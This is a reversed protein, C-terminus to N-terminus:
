MIKQGSLPLILYRIHSSHDLIWQAKNLSRINEKIVNDVFNPVRGNGIDVRESFPQREPKINNDKSKSDWM